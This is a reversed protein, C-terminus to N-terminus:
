VEYLYISYHHDESDKKVPTWGPIPWVYAIVKSNPKLEKKLKAKLKEMKDPMLFTYVIDADELSTNWFDRYRIATRKRIESPQFLGHIHALIFPFLSIEYGTASAGAEAAAIVLRGDGCGLDVFHQGPKIHALKLFREVDHSKTPVWPAGRFGAYAFTLLIIFVILFLLPFM